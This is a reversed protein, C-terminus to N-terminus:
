GDNSFKKYNIKKRNQIKLSISQYFIKEFVYTLYSLAEQISRTTDESKREIYISSKRIFFSIEIKM